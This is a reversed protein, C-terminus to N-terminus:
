RTGAPAVVVDSVIIDNDPKGMVTFQPLSQIFALKVPDFGVGFEPMGYVYIYYSYLPSLTFTQTASFQGSVTTATNHTNKDSLIDKIRKNLLAVKIENYAYSTYLANINVAGMLSNEAIDIFLQLDPDSIQVTKILNLIELYQNINNSAIKEYQRNALLQTYSDYILQLAALQQPTIKNKSALGGGGHGGGSVSSSGGTGSPCPCKRPFNILGVGSGYLSPANFVNRQPKVM